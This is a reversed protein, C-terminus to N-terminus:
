SALDTKALLIVLLITMNVSRGKRMKVSLIVLMSRVIKRFKLLLLMTVIEFGETRVLDIKLV